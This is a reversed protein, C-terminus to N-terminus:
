VAPPLFVAAILKYAYGNYADGLSMCLLAEGVDFEGEGNALYKSEIRTDTIAVRYFHDYYNFEGRVKRKANNFAAGEVSVSIRLNPVRIFYLSGGFAKVVNTARAEHVRDNVGSTSSSCNEWLPGNVQDVLPLLDAWSAEGSKAWYYGDHILHNETQYAHASPSKMPISIIDRLAPYEGNKYRRDHESLEGSPRSSVPRIWNGRNPGDVLKGAICRGSMKRSNALCVIHSNYSPEALIFDGRFSGVANAAFM